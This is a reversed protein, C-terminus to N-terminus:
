LNGHAASKTQSKKLKTMLSFDSQKRSLVKSAAGTKLVKLYDINTWLYNINMMKSLKPIDQIKVPKSNRQWSEEIKSVLLQVIEELNEANQFSSTNV